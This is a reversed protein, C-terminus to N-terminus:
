SDGKEAILRCINQLSSRLLESARIDKLVHVPWDPWSCYSRCVVNRLSLKYCKM